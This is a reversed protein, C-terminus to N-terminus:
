PYSLAPLLLAALHAGQSNIPCCLSLVLVNGLALPLFLQVVRTSLMPCFLGCLWTPSM